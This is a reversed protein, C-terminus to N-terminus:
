SDPLIIQKLPDLHAAFRKWRGVSSSYIPKRVQAVSATRVVRKSEYFALCNDDWPLGIHGMMRRSTGALDAVMDEYHMDLITGEPLVSHWHRMLQQYHVYYRGLTELDYTFELGKKFLLCFCSLCSDMPNRVAHIIKAQPLILHIMGVLYFNSTTKDTIYRLDPAQKWLERLYHDGMAQHDEETLELIFRSGHIQAPGMTGDRIVDKLLSIEGAGYVQPHNSLVQEILTTGSRPMGVIFIPTKTEQIAARKKMAFFDRDMIQMLRQGSSLQLEEDYHMISAQLRNGSAYTAFSEDYCGVDDLAKALAFHLQIREEIKLKTDANHLKRLTALDPDDTTYKKLSSLHYHAPIFEPHANISQHFIAVAAEIHGQMKLVNGLNNYPDAADPSLAIAQRFAAAADDLLNQEQLANGLNNYAEAYNPQLAIAQRFAAVAESLLDQNQLDNSLYNYVGAIDLQLTIVQRSVTAADDLLHRDKLTNGLNNYAITYDPQLAIAQRFATIAADRKGQAQLANGLNYYAKAFNLKHEIAQRYATVAEELLDQAKLAIGLNCYAEAHNPRLAIAQRYATIAEELRDQEKLANGLNYYALAFHPQIAIAQRFAAIAEDLLAQEQLANGLNYYAEAYSSRLVIAQRYAAIAEELLDQAKLAIGLHLYTDANDPQVAIARKLLDVSEQAYGLQHSIVGLLHLVDFDIDNKKLLELCIRRAEVLNRQTYLTFADALTKDM